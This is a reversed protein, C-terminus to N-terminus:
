YYHSPASPDSMPLFLHGAGKRRMIPEKGNVQSHDASWEWIVGCIRMRTATSATSPRLPM